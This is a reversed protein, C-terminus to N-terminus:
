ASGEAFAEVMVEVKEFPCATISVPCNRSLSQLPERCTKMCGFQHFKGALGGLAGGSIWGDHPPDFPEAFAEDARSCAGSTLM